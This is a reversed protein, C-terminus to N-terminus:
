ASDIVRVAARDTKSREARNSTPNSPDEHVSRGCGSGGGTSGPGTISASRSVAVGVEGEAITPPLM